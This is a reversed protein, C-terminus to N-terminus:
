KECSVISLDIGQTLIIRLWGERAHFDPIDKPHDVAWCSKKGDNQELVASLGVDLDSCDQLLGLDIATEVKLKQDSLIKVEIPLTNFFKEPKMGERYGTFSYVNWSGSPSLNVERYNPMGQQALFIEFCTHEWLKKKRKIKYPNFGPIMLDSLQADLEFVVQLGAERRSLMVNIQSNNPANEGSFPKLEFKQSSEKM